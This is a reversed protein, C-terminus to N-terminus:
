RRTSNHVTSMKPSFDETQKRKAKRMFREQRKQSSTPPRDDFYTDADYTPYTPYRDVLRSDHPDFAESYSDSEDRYVTESVHANTHASQTSYYIDELTPALSRGTIHSRNQTSRKRKEPESRHPHPSLQKKKRPRAPLTELQLLPTILRSRCWNSQLQRSM